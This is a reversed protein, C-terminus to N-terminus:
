TPVSATQLKPRIQLATGAIELKYKMLNASCLHQFMMQLKRQTKNAWISISLTAVATEARAQSLPPNEDTSQVVFGMVATASRLINTFRKDSSDTITFTINHNITPSNTATPNMFNTCMTLVAMWQRVGRVREEVGRRRFGWCQSFETQVIPVVKDFEHM